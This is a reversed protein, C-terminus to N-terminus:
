TKSGHPADFDYSSIFDVLSFFFDVQLDCSLLLGSWGTKAGERSWETSLRTRLMIADMGIERQIEVSGCVAEVLRDKEL